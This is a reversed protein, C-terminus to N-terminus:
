YNVCFQLNGNVKLTFLILASYLAKNLKIFGKKLNEAIYKKIKQLKYGSLSYIKSQSPIGEDTLEIQHDYQHHPPLENAKKWNLVNCYDRYEGPLLANIKQDSTPNEAFDNKLCM